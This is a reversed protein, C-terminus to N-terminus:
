SRSAARREDAQRKKSHVEREDLLLRRTSPLRDLLRLLRLGMRGRAGARRPVPHSQEAALSEIADTMVRTAPVSLGHPRVFAEVFRRQQALVLDRSPGDELLSSLQATHEDLSRAVTLLGGATHMLYRFHLTGEQNAFFPETLIAMVPRGVIGAEIFASTNLGVVAHSYHLSDFYDNRSADDIPNGGYLAVGPVKRWDATEWETMRSPHPRILVQLDRVRPDSSRRLAAIWELVFEAEPPSNPFLASCVWLVYPAEDPLGVHRAFDARPRSPGREFWRDFNQAGTVVIRDAPIGHMEIAEERQMGNWVFLRDPVDRIIAKSSLHDWSWVCVGTPIGRAQASRLLDIQSTAVLGILPTVLLVDPRHQDLFREVKPSPPFARDVDDLLRRMQRRLRPSTGPVANALSVVLKSTRVEARQRLAPTAAYAPELYRLYDIGLRVKSVLTLAEKERRPSIGHTILPSAAALRDIILRGGIASEHREAGLYTQHGRRALEAVVSELNRYYGSHLASFVVRM